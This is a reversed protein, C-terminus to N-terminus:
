IIDIKWCKTIRCNRSEYTSLIKNKLPINQRVRETKPCSEGRNALVKKVFIIYSKIDPM